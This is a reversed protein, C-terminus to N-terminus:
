GSRHHLGSARVRTVVIRIGTRYDASFSDPTWGLSEIERGYKEIYGPFDRAPPLDEVTAVGELTVVWYARRDGRLNFAVRPNDALSTLRPTDPRNYVIIDEGDRLFWVPSAQPQGASDVATLFGILEEDLATVLGQSGSLM